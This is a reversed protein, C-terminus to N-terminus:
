HILTSGLNLSVELRKVIIYYFVGKILMNVPLLKGKQGGEMEKLLGLKINFLYFLAVRDNSIKLLDLIM